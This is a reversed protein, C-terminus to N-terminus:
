RRWDLVPWGRRRATVRLRPDPNVIYPRGVRELLPLDTISDTYFASQALDIGARTALEEAHLVKGPGFCLPRVVDGTFRGAEVEYRTCLIEHLGFQDRAKESAYLSSSTCLVLLDGAARHQEVAAFAGPAARAAVEDGYWDHTSRRLDEEPAGRVTKLAERFAADIDLLGLRYSAFFLAARALERRRMRGARRERRVWLAATNAALLTGDLDFFAAARAM